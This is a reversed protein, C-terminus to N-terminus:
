RHVRQEGEGAFTWQQLLGRYLAVRDGLSPAAVLASTALLPNEVRHFLGKKDEEEEPEEEGHSVPLHPAAPTEGGSGANRKPVSLWRSCLMPTLTFAVILSIFIAFAMTLGFSSMFRGVIGAMFGVPLFIAILSLTTALVALGIEQTAEVAAQKPPMSKERMFRYINELVLIADDIVIGVCLTLALLTITNLTYGMGWMFTFTSIISAPIALAAILTARWDWLFILVVVAAFISGLVLHEEVTRVSSNIFESRDTTIEIKYGPPLRLSLEALREKIGNIVAITNAGSQKRVQMLVSPKGNLRAVSTAEKQSDEVDAVDKLLVSHGDQQAVVLAKLADVSGFRGETRVTIRQSGHELAGGPVDVNQSAIATRVAVASLDYARLRNPDLTVNIQRLRGGAISAEGVGSVTELQPRLTKDAYESLTRISEGPATLTFNIV